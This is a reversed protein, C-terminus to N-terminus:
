HRTAATLGYGFTVSQTCAIWPAKAEETPTIDLDGWVPGSRHSQNEDGFGIADAPPSEEIANKALNMLRMIETIRASEDVAPDVKSAILLDISMTCCREGDVGPSDETGNYLIIIRPIAGKFQAERAQAESTSVTVSKFVTVGSLTAGALATDVAALITGDFNQVTIAAM